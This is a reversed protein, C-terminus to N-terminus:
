NADHYMADSGWIVFNKENRRIKKIAMNVKVIALLKNRRNIPQSPTPIM